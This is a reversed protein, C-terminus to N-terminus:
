GRAFIWISISAVNPKRNAMRLHMLEV